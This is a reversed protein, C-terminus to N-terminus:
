FYDDDNEKAISQKLKSIKGLLPAQKKAFAAAKTRRAKKAPPPRAPPLAEANKSRRAKPYKARYEESAQKDSLACGYSVKNKTAFAKVFDTWITMYIYLVRYSNSRITHLRSLM